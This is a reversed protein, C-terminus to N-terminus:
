IFFAIASQAWLVELTPIPFTLHQEGFGEHVQQISDSKTAQQFISQRLVSFDWTSKAYWAPQEGLQKYHSEKRSATDINIQFLCM